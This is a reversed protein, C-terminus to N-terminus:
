LCDTKGFNESFLVRDLPSGAGSSLVFASLDLGDADQDGDSDGFCPPTM